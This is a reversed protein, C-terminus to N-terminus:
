RAGTLSVDRNVARPLRAKRKRVWGLFGVACGLGLLHALVLSFDPLGPALLGCIGVLVLSFLLDATLRVRYCGKVLLENGYFQNLVAPVGGSITLWYVVRNTWTPAWGYTRFILPGALLLALCGLGALLLGMVFSSRLLPRYGRSGHLANWLPFLAQNFQNVLTSNLNSLQRCLTYFGVAAVGGPWSAVLRVSAFTASSVLLSALLLPQCDSLVLRFQRNSLCAFSLGDKEIALVLFSSLCFGFSSGGLIWWIQELGPRSGFLLLAVVATRCAAMGLLASYRRYAVLAATLVTEVSFLILYGHALALLEPTMLKAPFFFSGVPESLAHLFGSVLGGASVVLVLTATLYAAKDPFDPRSLYRILAPPAGLTTLVTWVAVYGLLLAHVGVSEVSHLQSIRQGILLPMAQNVGVFLGYGLLLRYPLGRLAETVTHFGVRM